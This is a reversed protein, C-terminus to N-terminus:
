IGKRVRSIENPYGIPVSPFKLALVPFALLLFVKLMPTIVAAAKILEVTKNLWALKIPRSLGVMKAM